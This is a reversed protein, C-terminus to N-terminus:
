GDSLICHVCHLATPLIASSLLPLYGVRGRLEFLSRSPCCFQQAQSRIKELDAFIERERESVTSQIPHLQLHPQHPSNLVAEHRERKRQDLGKFGGAGTEAMERLNECELKARELVVVEPTNSPGAGGGIRRGNLYEEEDGRRGGGHKHEVTKL